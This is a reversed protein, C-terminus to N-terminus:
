KAKTGEGHRAVDSSEHRGPRHKADEYSVFLTVQKERTKKKLKIYIINYYHQIITDFIYIYIYM